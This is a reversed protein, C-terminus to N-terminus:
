WTWLELNRGSRKAESWPTPTVRFYYGAMELIRDWPAIEVRNSSGQWTMNQYEKGWGEFDSRRGIIIRYSVLMPQHTGGSLNYSHDVAKWAQKKKLKELADAAFVGDRNKEMWAQWDKVQAEAGRLRGKAQRSNNFLGGEIIPPEIEILDVDWSWDSRMGIMVFDPVRKDALHFKPFVTPWSAGQGFTGSLIAPHQTLFKQLQPELTENDILTKLEQYLRLEESM